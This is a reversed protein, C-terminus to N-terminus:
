AFVDLLSGKRVLDVPPPPPQVRLGHVHERVVGDEVPPLVRWPPVWPGTWPGGPKGNWFGSAPYYAARDGCCGPDAPPCATAPPLHDAARAAPSPDYCDPRRVAGDAGAAKAQYSAGNGRQQPTPTYYQRPRAYLQAASPRITGLPGDKPLNANIAGTISRVLKLESIAVILSVASELSSM